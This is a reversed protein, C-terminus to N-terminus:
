NKLWYTKIKITYKYDDTNVKQSSIALGGGTPTDSAFEISSVDVIRLNKELDKLFATFNGYTGQTSFQLDWSGYDKRSNGTKDMPKAATGAKAKDDESSYKVDKLSMKYPSAIKEIELILRINDVSDPLLVKLKDLDEKSMSNQKTVLKDREQELAKSNTLAQNYSESKTRLDQIENYAPSLFMFFGAIAMGILIIPIVFRM